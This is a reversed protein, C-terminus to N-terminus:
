ETHVHLDGFYAKRDANGAPNSFLLDKPMALLKDAARWNTETAAPAEAAPTAAPAAPMTEAAPNQENSCGLTSALVAAIAAGRLYKGYSDNVAYGGIKIKLQLWPYGIQHYEHRTNECCDGPHYERRECRPSLRHSRM